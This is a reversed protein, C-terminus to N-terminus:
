CHSVSDYSSIMLSNQPIFILLGVIDSSLSQIIMSEDVTFVDILVLHACNAALFAAPSPTSRCGRTLVLLLWIDLSMVQTNISV